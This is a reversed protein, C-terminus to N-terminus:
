IFAINYNLYYYIILFICFLGMISSIIPIKKYFYIINIDKSYYGMLFYPFFAVIKHSISFPLYGWLLGIFFSSYLILLSREKAFTSPINYIFLRYIILCALYWLTGKPYLMHFGFILTNGGLFPKMCKIIQFVLYTEFLRIIGKRYKVKDNIQSFRGSIFIFFPMHFLYIFNYMAQNFSSNYVYTEIMHGYVVLFILFFKLSDWFLDRKM